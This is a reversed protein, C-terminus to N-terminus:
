RGAAYPNFHFKLSRIQSEIECAIHAKQVDESIIPDLM